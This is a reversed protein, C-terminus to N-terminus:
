ILAKFEYLSWLFKLNQNKFFTLEPVFMLTQVHTLFFFCLAVLGHRYKKQLYSKDKASM